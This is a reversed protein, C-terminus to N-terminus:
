TPSLPPDTQLQVLMCEDDSSSSLRGRAIGSVVLDLVDRLAGRKELKKASWSGVIQTIAAEAGMREEEVSKVLDKLGDGLKVVV